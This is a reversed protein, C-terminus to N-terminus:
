RWFAIYDILWYLKRALFLTADGGFLTFDVGLFLAIIVGLVIALQNTM